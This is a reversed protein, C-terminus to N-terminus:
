THNKLLSALTKSICAGVEHLTVVTSLARDLSDSTRLQYWIYQDQDCLDVINVEKVHLSYRNTNCEYESCHHHM